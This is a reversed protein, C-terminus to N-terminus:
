ALSIPYKILTRIMIAMLLIKGLGVSQYAFGSSPHPPPLPPIASQRRWHIPKSHFRFTIQLTLTSHTDLLPSGCPWLSLNTDYIYLLCIMKPWLYLSSLVNKAVYLLCVFFWENDFLRCAIGKLLYYYVLLCIMGQWSENLCLMRPWSLNVM